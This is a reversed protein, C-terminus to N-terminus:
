SPPIPLVGYCPQLLIYFFFSSVTYVAPLKARGCCNVSQPLVAEACLQVSVCGTLAFSPVTIPQVTTVADGLARGVHSVRSRNALM